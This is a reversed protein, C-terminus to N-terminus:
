IWRESFVSAASKSLTTSVGLKGPQFYMYFIAAKCTYGCHYYCKKNSFKFLFLSSMIIKNPNTPKLPHSGPTLMYAFNLLARLTLLTKSPNEKGLLIFLCQFDFCIHNYFKLTYVSVAVETTLWIQWSLENFRCLLWDNITKSWMKCCFARTIQHWYQDDTSRVVQSTIYMHIYGYLGHSISFGM